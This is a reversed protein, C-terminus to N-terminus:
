RKTTSKVIAYMLAPVGFAMAVHGWDVVNSRRYDLIENVLALLGGLIGLGIALWGARTIRGGAM